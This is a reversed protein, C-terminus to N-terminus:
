RSLNGAGGALSSRSTLAEIRATAREYLAQAEDLLPSDQFIQVLREYNDIAKQLREPQRAEVSQEAFAIYAQIAGLLADDAWASGPYQDFVREFELAAAEYLERREYLKAAEYQKRALKERLEVVRAQAEDVLPSQPFREIFLMFQTIARETDTQDLQYGPSLEYYAMAREYEADARREDSPYLQSFRSFENAALIYERNGVYARALQLQADDAWEHTRGFDFVAQFYETAQDYRGREYARMGREYAEEPTEYRIQGAGACGAVLVAVLVAFM